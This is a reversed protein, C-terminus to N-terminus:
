KPPGPGQRPAIVEQDTRVSFHALTIPKGHADALEQAVSRLQEVRTLDAGILPFIMNGDGKFAPVGETGDSDVLIFAYLTNIRLQGHM